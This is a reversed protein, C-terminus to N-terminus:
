LTRKVSEKAFCTAVIAPITMVFFYIIVPTVSRGTRGMLATAVLPAIGGGLATGFQKGLSTGSVRVETDFLEALFSGEVSYLIPHILAASAAIGLSAVLASTGTFYHFFCFYISPALLGAMVVPRRGVRDSLLGFLPMAILAGANGITYATTLATQNVGLTKSCYTIAWITALYFYGTEAMSVLLAITTAGKWKKLIVAIPAKSVKRQEAVKVFKQSEAMNMRLYLGIATLPASVLFPVRWGWSHFAAAGAAATISSVSFAAGVMGLPGCGQVIAGFLGRRTDPANEVTLVLSGTTEGGLAVGQLLRLIVLLIPAWVGITAYSPLLGLAASSLGMTALTTLLVSKRGVRDGFHGFIVGGLPRALFGIAFTSFAAMRGMFPDLSPFFVSDFVLPAILSYSFFDFWEIATGFSNAVVLRRYSSQGAAKVAQAQEPVM